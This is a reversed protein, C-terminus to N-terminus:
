FVVALPVLLSASAKPPAEEALPSTKVDPTGVGVELMLVATAEGVPPELELEDPRAAILAMSVPATATAARKPATIFKYLM